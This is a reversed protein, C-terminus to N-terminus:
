EKILENLGIVELGKSNIYKIILDMNKINTVYIISGSALSNRITAYDGIVTPIVVYMNNDNCTNLVDSNKEKTLCYLSKNGANRNIISNDNTLIENTYKGENGYSYIEKDKLKNINSITLYKTSIFLTINKFDKIKEIEDDDDINVLLAVANKNANGKIIYKDRNNYLSDSPYIDKYVLSSESFVGLLKMEEYSKNVDVEHGKIGPIITNDNISANVPELRYDDKKDGLERMLPDKQNIMNMVRDTYFFSFCVVVLLSFTKIINKM